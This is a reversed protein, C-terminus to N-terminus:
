CIIRLLLPCLFSVRWPWPFANAPASSTCNPLQFLHHVDLMFLLHCHVPCLMVQWNGDERWAGDEVNRVGGQEEPAGALAKGQGRCAEGTFVPASCKLMKANWACCCHVSSLSVDHGLFLMHLLELALPSNSIFMFISCSCFIAISLASCSRRILMMSCHTAAYPPDFIQFYGM